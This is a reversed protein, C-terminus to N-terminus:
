AATLDIVEVNRAAPADSQLVFHVSPKAERPVDGRLQMFGKVDYKVAFACNCGAEVDTIRWIWDQVRGLSEGTAFVVGQEKFFKKDEERCCVCNCTSARTCPSQQM